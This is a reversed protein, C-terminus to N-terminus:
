LRIKIHYRCFWIEREKLLCARNHKVCDNINHPFNEVVLRGNGNFPDDFNPIGLVKEATRKSEFKWANLEWFKVHKQLRNYIVGQEFSKNFAFLPRPLRDLGEEICQCLEQTDEEDTVYHIHMGNHTIFGFIIPHIDYLARHDLYRKDFTGITEFDIITGEEFVQEPEENLHIM